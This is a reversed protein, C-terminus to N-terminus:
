PPGGPPPRPTQRLTVPSLLVDARQAPDTIARAAYVAEDELQATRRRQDRAAALDDDAAALEARAQRHRIVLHLVFAAVALVVAPVAVWPPLRAASALLAGVLATATTPLTTM